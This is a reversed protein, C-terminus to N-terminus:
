SILASEAKDLCFLKHDVRDDNNTNDARLLFDIVCWLDQADCLKHM